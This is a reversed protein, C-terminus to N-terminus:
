IPILNSVSVLSAVKSLASLRSEKCTEGNEFSNESLHKSIEEALGVHNNSRKGQPVWSRSFTVQSFSPAILALIMLTCCFITGDLRCM